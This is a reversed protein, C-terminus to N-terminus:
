KNKNRNSTEKDNEIAYIHEINEGDDLKKNLM